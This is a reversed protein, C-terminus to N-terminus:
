APPALSGPPIGSSFFKLYDPKTIQTFAERPLEPSRFSRLGAELDQAGADLRPLKPDLKQKEASPIRVPEARVVNKPAKPRKSEQSKHVFGAPAILARPSVALLVFALLQAILIAHGRARRGTPMM